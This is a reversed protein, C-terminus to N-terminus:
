PWDEDDWDDDDTMGELLRSVEDETMYGPCRSPSSLRITKSKKKFNMIAGLREKLLQKNESLTVAGPSEKYKGVAAMADLLTKGDFQNGSWLPAFATSDCRALYLVAM